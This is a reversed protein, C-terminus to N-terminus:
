AKPLIVTVRSRKTLLPRKGTKKGSDDEKKDASAVQKADSSSQQSASQAASTANASTGLTSAAQAGNVSANQSLVTASVGAGGSANVGGIGVIIGIIPGGAALNATGGAVVTGSFSQAANITTDQKSIVLGTINGNADLNVTGGIVGSNGLQINGAYGASGATPRTGAVLTVTPGPLLTGNLVTQLIGGQNAIINGQPTTVAINGPLSPSGPVQSPDTLTAALIGSGSAYERFAAPQGSSDVFYNV